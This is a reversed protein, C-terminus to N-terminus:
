RVRELARRLTGLLRRARRALEPSLEALSPTAELEARVAENVLGKEFRLGAAGFTAELRAALKGGPALRLPGAGLRRRARELYWEPPFLDEISSERRLGLARGLDLALVRGGPPQQRLRELLEGRGARGAEDGDFLAVVGLGRRALFAAVHAVEWAGGAAIVELDAPLGAEGSRRALASLTELLRADHSGEVVLSTEAVLFGRRGSMGLAARLEWGGGLGPLPAGRVRPGAESWGLVLVQEDHALSTRFPLPATHLVTHDRALRGLDEALANEGEGRFIRAPEDLLLVARGRPASGAPRVFRELLVDLTLRWRVEDALGELPRLGDSGEGLYLALRQRSGELVLSWPRGGGEALRRSLRRSAEALRRQGQGRALPERLAGLELGALDLLALLSHDAARATGETVRRRLGVLDVSGELLGARGLLVFPPLIARAARGLSESAAASGPGQGDLGVRLEGGYTRALELSRPTAGDPAGAAAALEAAIAAPLALEASCPAVEAVGHRRRDEPWDREPDYGRPTAPHLRFLAELLSTKGSQNRGVLATLPFVPVWGSDVISRFLRVRFARLEVREPAGSADPDPKASSAETGM